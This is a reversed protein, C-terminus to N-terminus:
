TILILLITFATQNARNMGSFVILNMRYSTFALKSDFVM